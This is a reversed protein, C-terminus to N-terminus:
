QPVREAQGHKRRRTGGTIHVRREDELKQSNVVGRLVTDGSLLPRIMVNKSDAPGSAAVGGNSGWVKKALELEKQRRVRVVRVRLADGNVDLHCWCRSTCCVQALQLRPNHGGEVVAFEHWTCVVQLHAVADMAAHRRQPIAAPSRTGQTSPHVHAKAPRGM